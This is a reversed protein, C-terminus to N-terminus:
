SRSGSGVRTTSWGTASRWTQAGRGRHHPASRKPRTEIARFSPASRPKERLVKLPESNRLISWPTTSTPRPWRYPENARNLSPCSTPTLSVYSNTPSPPVPSQSTPSRSRPRRRGIVPCRRAWGRSAAAAARPARGPSARTEQCALGTLPSRPVCGALSSRSQARTAFFSVAARRDQCSTTHLRDARRGVAMATGGHGDQYRTEAEAPGPDGM